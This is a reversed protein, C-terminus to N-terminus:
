HRARTSPTSRVPCWIVRWRPSLAGLTNDGANYQARVYVAPKFTRITRDAGQLLAAVSEAATVPRPLRAAAVAAFL